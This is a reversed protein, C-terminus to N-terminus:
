HDRVPFRIKLATGKGRHLKITGELQEVLTLVLQLGLSETNRFDINKPFGVGNDTVMLEIEKESIYKISIKVEGRREGPFAHKLANSILENTILACPFATNINLFIDKVDINLKIVNPELRYFSLLHGTLSQVYGAFEIRALDMTQYLKEHVLAMSRIRNQSDKFMELAEKDKIYNSQLKLLSSIVQMNNKVRHHIEKLLVEKERLSAKIQEEAQKRETIDKSIVAINTAIGTKPDKVPTLTRIFYKNDKNSRYEYSLPKGTELTKKVRKTLEKKEEQCHFEGYKRGIIQEMQSGLRSLHKSNMFLYKCNRDVLYISDESSEVLSRYKLESEQLAEQAQKHEQREQLRQLSLRVTAPVRVFHKPSKVVYDDLGAKMAEVAIEETGTGTFMIVPCCPYRTKIAHLIEIGNGWGLMYDTIVIDFNGGELASAFGEADIIQEIDFEFEKKLERIVLDRDDPNDEIFLIRLEKM